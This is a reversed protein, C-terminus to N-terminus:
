HHFSQSDVLSGIPALIVLGEFSGPAILDRGFDLILRQYCRSEGSTLAYCLCASVAMRLGVRQVDPLRCITLGDGSQKWKVGTRGEGDEDQHLREKGATGRACCPDIFRQLVMDPNNSSTWLWRLLGM